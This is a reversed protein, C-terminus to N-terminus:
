HGEQIPSSSTSIHSPIYIYIHIGFFHLQLRAETSGIYRGNLPTSRSLYNRVIM